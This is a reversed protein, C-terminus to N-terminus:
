LDPRVEHEPQSGGAVAANREGDSANAALGVAARLEGAREAPPALELGAVPDAHLQSRAPSRGVDLRVGYAPVAIRVPAAVEHAVGLVRVLQLERAAENEPESAPFIKM